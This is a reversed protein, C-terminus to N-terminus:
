QHNSKKYFAILLIKHLLIMMVFSYTNILRTDGLYELKLGLYGSSFIVDSILIICGEVLIAGLYSLAQQVRSFRITYVVPFCWTILLSLAILFVIGTSPINVYNIFLNMTLLFLSSLWLGIRSLVSKTVM